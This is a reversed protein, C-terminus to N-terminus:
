IKIGRRQLERVQDKTYRYFIDGKTPDFDWPSVLVVDGERIWVRKKMKGRIRCVRKRGDAFRILLRDFGMMQEVTGVEDTGGPLVMPASLEHIIKRKGM